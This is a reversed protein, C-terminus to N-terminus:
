VAKLSMVKRRFYGSTMMGRRTASHHKQLHRVGGSLRQRFRSRRQLPRQLCDAAATQEAPAAGHAAPPPERERAGQGQKTGEARNEM